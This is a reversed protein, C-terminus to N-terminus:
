QEEKNLSPQPHGTDVSHWGLARALVAYELEWGWLRLRKMM